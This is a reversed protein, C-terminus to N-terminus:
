NELPIQVPEVIEGTTRDVLRHRGSKIEYYFDYERGNNRLSLHLRKADPKARAKLIQILQILQNGSIPETPLQFPMEQKTM